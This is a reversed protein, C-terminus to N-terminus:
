VAQSRDGLVVAPASQQGSRGEIISRVSSLSLFEALNIQRLHDHIRLSLACWLEYTLCSEGHRCQEHAERRAVDPYEGVAEIIDAITITQVDRALRYGGGPGRLGIVLEAERLCAFLQELYSVSIGQCKAIQALAVPDGSDNLALDLMATVAYRGKTSLRM